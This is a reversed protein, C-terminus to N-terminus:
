VPLQKSLSHHGHTLLVSKRTLCCGCIPLMITFKIVHTIFLRLPFITMCCKCSFNVLDVMIFDDNTSMMTLAKPPEVPSNGNQDEILIPKKSEKEDEEPSDPSIRESLLRSFPVCPIPIASELNKKNLSAFAGMKVTDNLSNKDESPFFYVTTFVMTDVHLNFM